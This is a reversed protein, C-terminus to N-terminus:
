WSRTNTCQESMPMFIVGARKLEEKFTTAVSSPTRVRCGGCRATRRGPARRRSSNGAGRLPIGLNKYTQFEPIAGRRALGDEEAGFLLLREPLRDKSLAAGLDSECPSGAAMPKLGGPSCGTRTTTPRFSNSKIDTVFGSRIRSRQYPPGTRRDRASSTVERSVSFRWPGRTPNQRNHDTRKDRQRIM